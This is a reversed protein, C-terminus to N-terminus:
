PGLVVLGGHGSPDVTRSDGEATVAVRGTGVLPRATTSTALTEVPGDGWVVVAEGVQWARGGRAQLVGVEGRDVGALLAALARWAGAAPKDRLSHDPQRALLSNTRTGSPRPNGPQPPPDFLTHWFVKEVGWSLSELVTAVALQAQFAESQWSFRGASPVSTETLWIPKGPAAARTHQFTLALADVEPGQHYAHVSIVDLADLVGPEAFLRRMYALGPDKTVRNFGGGLVVAEPAAARIAAATVRTVEAVEATSAFDDTEGTRLDVLNKLDPENDIEWHLVPHQLGPMDDVGDGDYREVAATVFARYADLDQPLYRDTAERTQNGPWPGIMALPALGVQQVVRVWADMREWSRGERLWRDHSLRPWAATHGRTWTAGLGAAARADAALRSAKPPGQRQEQRLPVSVAENIGLAQLAPGVPVVPRPPPGPSRGSAFVAWGALGSIAVVAAAAGLRRKM